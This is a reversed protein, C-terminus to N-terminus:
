EKDGTYKSDSEIYVAKKVVQVKFSFMGVNEIDYSVGNKICNNNGSLKGGFNSCAEKSENYGIFIGAAMLSIFVIALIVDGRDLGM